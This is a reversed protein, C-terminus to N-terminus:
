RGGWMVESPGTVDYRVLVTMLLEEKKSYLVRVKKLTKLSEIIRVKDGKFLLVSLLDLEKTLATNEYFFYDVPHGSPIQSLGAKQKRKEESLIEMETRGHFLTSHLDCLKRIRAPDEGEAILSQEAKMIDHASVQGFDTVFDKRVSEFDEGAGLRKLLQKIKEAHSQIEAQQESETAPPADKVTLGRSAFARIITEMPIGMMAAGKPLTMVRGMVKLAMPSTIKSFGLSALIDKVEPFEQVLDYVTKNLNVIKKM